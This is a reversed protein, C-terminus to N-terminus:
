QLYFLLTAVDLCLDLPIYLAYVVESGDILLFAILCSILIAAHLILVMWHAHVFARKM